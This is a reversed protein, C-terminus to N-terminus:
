YWQMELDGKPAGVWPKPSSSYHIIKLPGAAEWYGPNKKFTFWHLIRQANYGFPLRAEPEMEFWNPYYANLLGTDGGDYPKVDLAILEKFVTENPKILLVGANFNDPPFVDPAAAFDVNRDFIDEIKDVVLCDADIYLIKEFDTLNWIHLKTYGSGVWSADERM